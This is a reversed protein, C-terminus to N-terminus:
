ILKKFNIVVNKALILVSNNKLPVWKQEVGESIPVAVGNITTPQYAAFEFTNTIRNYKIEAHQIGVKPHKIKFITPDQRTDLENSIKCTNTRIVFREEKQDLQTYSLVGIGIKLGQFNQKERQTQQIINQQKGVPDKWEVRIHNDDVFQLNHMVLHDVNINTLMKSKDLRVSVNINKYKEQSELNTLDYLSSWVIIDGQKISFKHGGVVFESEMCPMLYFDWKAAPGKYDPYRKINKLIVQYFENVIESLFFPFDDKRIQYDDPHMHLYFTMPYIMKKGVSRSNLEESFHKVMEKLIFANTVNVGYRNSERDMGFMNHFVNIIRKM